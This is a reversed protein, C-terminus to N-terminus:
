LLHYRLSRAFGDIGPFLSSSSVNMKWLDILIQKRLFDQVIVKIVVAKSLELSTHIEPNYDASAKNKFVGGNENFVAALNSEFGVKLNLPFLFLGQQIALRENMRDPEVPFVLSDNESKWILRNLENNYKHNIDEKTLRENGFKMKEKFVKNVIDLNIAWIASDENPDSKEVAFFAAVYFSYSFDLLRTVGGYHQILALWELHQTDAPVSSLYHHGRRKFEWLILKEKEGILDANDIHEGTFIARELTTSLGWSEKTQGRFAWQGTMQSVLNRMNDWTKPNIVKYV